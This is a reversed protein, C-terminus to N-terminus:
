FFSYLFHSAPRFSARPTPVAIGIRIRSWAMPLGGFVLHFGAAGKIEIFQYQIAFSLLVPMIYKLNM